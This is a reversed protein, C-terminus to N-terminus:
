NLGLSSVVHIMHKQPQTHGGSPLLHTQTSTEPLLLPPPHERGEPVGAGAGPHPGGGASGGASAAPLRVGGGPYASQSLWVSARGSGAAGGCPCLAFLM